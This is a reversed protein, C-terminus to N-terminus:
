SVMHFSIDVSSFCLAQSALCTSRSSRIVLLSESLSPPDETQVFLMIVSVTLSTSMDSSIIPAAYGAGGPSSNTDIFGIVNLTSASCIRIALEFESRQRYIEGVNSLAAIIHRTSFEENL